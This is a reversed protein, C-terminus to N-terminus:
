RRVNVSYNSASLVIQAIKINNRKCADLIEKQLEPKINKFNVGLYINTVKVSM